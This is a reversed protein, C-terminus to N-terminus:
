YVTTDEIVLKGNEITVNYDKWLSIKEDGQFPATEPQWTEINSPLSTPLWILGKKGQLTVKLYASFKGAKEVLSVKTAPPSTIDLKIERDPADTSKFTLRNENLSPIVAILAPASSADAITLSLTGADAPNAPAASLPASPQAPTADPTAIAQGDTSVSSADFTIPPREFAEADFSAATAKPGAEPEAPNVTNHIILWTSLTTAAVLSAGKGLTSLLSTLKDPKQAKLEALAALAKELDQNIKLPQDNNAGLKRIVGVLFALNNNIDLLGNAFPATQGQVVLPLTTRFEKIQADLAQILEIAEEDKQKLPATQGHITILLRILEQINEPLIAGIETIQRIETIRRVETGLEEFDRHLRLLREMVPEKVSLLQNGVLVQRIIELLAVMRDLQDIGPTSDSSEPEFTGDPAESKFAPPAATLPQPSGIITLAPGSGGLTEDAEDYFLRRAFETTTAKQILNELHAPTASYETVLETCAQKLHGIFAARLSNAGQSSHAPSRKTGHYLHTVLKIFLLDRVGADSVTEFILKVLDIPGSATSPNLSREKAALLILEQLKIAPPKEAPNPYEITISSTTARHTEFYQEPIIGQGATTELIARYTAEADHFHTESIKGQERLLALAQFIDLCAIDGSHTQLFMYWDPAGTIQAVSYALDILEQLSGTDTEIEDLHVAEPLATLPPTTTM